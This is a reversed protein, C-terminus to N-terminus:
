TVQLTPGFTTVLSNNQKLVHIVNNEQTGWSVCIVCVRPHSTLSAAMSTLVVMM